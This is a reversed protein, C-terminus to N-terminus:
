DSVMRHFAQVMHLATCHLASYVATHRAPRYARGLRRRFLQSRFHRSNPIKFDSSPQYPCAQSKQKFIQRTSRIRVEVCHMFIGTTLTRPPPRLCKLHCHPRRRGAVRIQVLGCINAAASGSSTVRFRHHIPCPTAHDAAARGMKDPSHACKQSTLRASFLHSLNGDPWSM